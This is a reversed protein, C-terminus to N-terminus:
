VGFDLRLSETRDALGFGTTVRGSELVRTDGLLGRLRTKPTEGSEPFEFRGARGDGVAAWPWSFRPSMIKPDLGAERRWGSLDDRWESCRSTEPDDFLLMELNSSAVSANGELVTLGSFLFSAVMFRSWALRPLGTALRRESCPIDLKPFSKLM